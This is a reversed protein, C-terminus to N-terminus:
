KGNSLNIKVLEKAKKKFVNLVKKNEIKNTKHNYSKVYDGKKIKEIPIGDILTGKVFCEDVIILDPEEDIKDIKHALSQVMYVKINDKPIGYRELTNEAQQQLEKRHIVFWVKKGKNISDQMISSAIVTKGVAM